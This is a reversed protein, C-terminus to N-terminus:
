QCGAPIPGVRSLSINGNLGANEGSSFSYSWTASGCNHFTLQATGVATTTQQTPPQNFAGGVTRFLTMNFTRQGAQTAAVPEATFWRQGSVGSTGFRDYTYWTAFVTHALSNVELILGQGSSPPNFWNGSYTFDINSPAQAGDLTCRVNPALRTLPITGAAGSNFQFSFTGAICSYFGITGTGVLTASTIPPHGLVGGVNQYINVQSNLTSGAITYWRQANDGGGAPGAFTFWGGSWTDASPFFEINFGQGYTTPFYWAGTLGQQDLTVSPPAAAVQNARECDLRPFNYG